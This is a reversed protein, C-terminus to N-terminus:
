ISSHRPRALALVALLSLSATGTIVVAMPVASDTPGLGVLPAALAGLVSQTAGLVAAATGASRPHRDLALATSNPTVMGVTAVFGFLAVAVPWLRGISAGALLCAAATLGAVLTGVLLRRAPFRDLLRANLQGLGVLGLANLGFLLSFVGAPVGFVDQMVFSSGSIYAFLGGFALAQTLAYGLYIRDTLLTGLARGTAALGGAHRREAPLTEPLWLAVATALLAGIAALAVFIARWDGIRLVLSGFGPAAVPAVGFILTLQSFYKAAAAGSYLDRVVARAVVVGTGGAFGQALRLAALTGAGPALACLLGIVAYAGIGLLVPRRRGWRDSLPGAVLQGLANGLLCTTLSLQLESQSAHLQAAMGPLAPLYMDMSLPSVATLTGLLILLAAGTARRPGPGPERGAGAAAAAASDPAADATATGTAADRAAAEAPPAAGAPADLAAATATGAPASRDSREPM